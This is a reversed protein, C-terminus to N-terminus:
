KSHFVLERTRAVEDHYWFTRIQVDAPDYNHYGAFAELASAVSKYQNQTPRNHSCNVNACTWKVYTYERGEYRLDIDNHQKVVVMHSTRNAGTDSM